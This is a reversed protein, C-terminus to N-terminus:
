VLGALGGRRMEARVPVNVLPRAQFVVRHWALVLVLVLVARPARVRVLSELVVRPTRVPVLRAVPVPVGRPRVRPLSGCGRPVRTVRVPRRVPWALLGPRAALSIM